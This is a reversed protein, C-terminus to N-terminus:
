DGEVTMPTNHIPCLPAGADKIWKNTVRAIYGCHCSVKLLRTSQVKFHGMGPSLPSHALEYGIEKILPTALEIFAEGPVTATPKGILGIARIVRVFEGKHGVECGVNAHVMEHAVVGVIEMPQSLVPSIMIEFAGDKSSIGPWCEGIVRKKVSLGRRSPFGMSIRFPPMKKKSALEIHPAIGSAIDNLWAERNNTNPSLKLKKKGM